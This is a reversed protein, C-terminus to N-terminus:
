QVPPLWQREYDGLVGAIDVPVNCGVRIFVAGM